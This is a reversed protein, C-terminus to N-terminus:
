GIPGTGNGVHPNNATEYDPTDTEQDLADADHSHDFTPVRVSRVGLMPGDMDRLAAERLKIIADSPKGPNLTSNAM